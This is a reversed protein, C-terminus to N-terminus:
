IKVFLNFHEEILYSWFKTNCHIDEKRNPNSAYQDKTFGYKGMLNKNHMLIKKHEIENKLNKFMIEEYIENYIIQSCSEVYEDGFRCRAAQETMMPACIMTIKKECKNANILLQKSAIIQNEFAKITRIDCETKNKIIPIVGSQDFGLEGFQRILCDGMLTPGVLFTETVIRNDNIHVNSKFKDQFDQLTIKKAIFLNRFNLKGELFPIPIFTFRNKNIKKLNCTNIFSDLHSNGIVDISYELLNKKNLDENNSVFTELLMEECQAETNLIDKECLNLNISKHERSFHKMVTQVTEDRVSRLNEKFSTSHLRPNNVIEFSPFYDIQAQNTSLQGAVARLISKSHVTSVLVHKGSASATLPVPSVTLLIKFENNSRIKRVIRQFENFDRIIEQFEANKFEYIDEDFEGCITGPATPYVTGSEKHVWMETLGLTFIFLDMKTFVDKVKQIHFNRHEIVEQEKKHGEPEVAPRLADFYKGNKKWVYNKPKREGAVEQALQLLQKVTYINGYRASYMSFGYKQHLEDPLGLPAKEEDIVQFGNRKLHRSIHQAFCSGATAIQTDPKIDFKKKYINDIAYPNEQTVGTKWFASSPLGSYPNM